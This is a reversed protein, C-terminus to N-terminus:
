ATLEWATSQPRWEACPRAHGLLAATPTVGTGHGPLSSITYRDRDVQFAPQTLDEAFWEDQRGAEATVADTVMTAIARGAAWLPGIEGVQVGIQYRLGRKSAEAIMEMSRLVGGCKSVRVNVHSAAEAGVALALDSADVCSEDLMVGLGTERRLWRMSEWDRATTPEEVWALDFALLHPAAERLVQSSYVGNVDLSLKTAGDMCARAQRLRAVTRDIEPAAKVKVHGLAGLTRPSLSGLLEAPERTMDVVVAIPVEAPRDRLVERPAGALRLVDALPRGHRRCIADLLAVELAAAAAPASGPAGLLRPLDLRALSSVCYEFSRWEIADQLMAVDLRSLAAVCSDMTEGTVYPRPAGEGWGEVGDLALRVLVSEAFSRTHRAHGFARLMPVRVAYVALEDIVSM